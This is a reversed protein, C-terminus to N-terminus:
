EAAAPMIVFSMCTACMCIYKYLFIYAARRREFCVSDAATARRCAFAGVAVRHWDFQMQNIKV